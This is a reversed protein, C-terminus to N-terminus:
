VKPSKVRSQHFAEVCTFTPHAQPPGRVERVCEGRQQVYKLQEFASRGCSEESGPRLLGRLYSIDRKSFTLCATLLPRPQVHYPSSPNNVLPKHSGPHALVIASADLPKRQLTRSVGREAVLMQLRNRSSRAPAIGQEAALSRRGETGHRPNSRGTQRKEVGLRPGEGGRRGRPQRLASQALRRLDGTQARVASL